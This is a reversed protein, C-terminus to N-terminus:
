ADHIPSKGVTAHIALAELVLVPDIRRVITRVVHHAHGIARYRLPDKIIQRCRGNLALGYVLRAM